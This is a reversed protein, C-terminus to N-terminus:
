KASRKFTATKTLTLPAEGGRKSKALARKGKKNLSLPVSLTTARKAKLTVPAIQKAAASLTGASAVRAALTARTGKFKLAGLELLAGAAFDAGITRSAALIVTCRNAAVSDCGSWGAFHSEPDPTATLTITTGSSLQFTPIVADRHM